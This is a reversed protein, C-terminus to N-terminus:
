GYVKTQFSKSSRALDFCDLNCSEEAITIDEIIRNKIIKSETKNQPTVNERWAVIKYGIPHVNNKILEYKDKNEITIFNNVFDQGFCVTILDEISETGFNRLIGSLDTNLSQLRNVLKNNVEIDSENISDSLLTLDSHIKELGQICVNLESAGFIELLKYKQVILTTKNIINQFHKVKYSIFSVLEDNTSNSKDSTKVSKTQKIKLNKPPM